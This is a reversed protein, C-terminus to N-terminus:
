IWLRWPWNMSDTLQVTWDLKYDFWQIDNFLSMFKQESLTITHSLIFHMLRKKKKKCKNQLEFAGTGMWQLQMWIHTLLYHCFEWNKPQIIAKFSSPHYPLNTFMLLFTYVSWILPNNTKESHTHQAKGEDTVGQINRKIEKLDVLAFTWLLHRKLYIRHSLCNKSM